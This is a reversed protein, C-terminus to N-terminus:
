WITHYNRSPWFCTKWVILPGVPEVLQPTGQKTLKARRIWPIPLGFLLLPNCPGIGLLSRSSQYHQNLCVYHLPQGAPPWPQFTDWFLHCCPLKQFVSSSPAAAQSCQCVCLSPARHRLVLEALPLAPNCGYNWMEQSSLWVTIMIAIGNRKKGGCFFSLYTKLDSLFYGIHRRDLMQAQTYTHVFVSLFLTKYKSLNRVLHLWRTNAWKECDYFVLFIRYANGSM